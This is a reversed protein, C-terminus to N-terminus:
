KIDDVAVNSVSRYPTKNQVMTALIDRNIDTKVKSSQKPYAIWFIADENLTPIVRPVWEGVEQANNVFLLIFDYKDGSIGKM